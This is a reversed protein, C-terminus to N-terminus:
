GSNRKRKLTKPLLIAGLLSMALAAIGFGIILPNHTDERTKLDMIHFGWMVDYFRWWRTRTAIIEGSGADVYFQTGDNMSVQWTSVPRRLDLPPDDASTRSVSRVTSAGTYRAEVEGRADAASIPPLLLGTLPDAVRTMGGPLKIVWRPGAARPELALSKLPVDAVNPPIPPGPLRVEATPRLLDSGRVEEIPKWVMVLGSIVWLLIPIAV